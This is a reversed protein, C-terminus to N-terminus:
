FCSLLFESKEIDSKCSKLAHKLDFLRAYYFIQNYLATDSYQLVFCFVYFGVVFWDM